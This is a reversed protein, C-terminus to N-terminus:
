PFHTLPDPKLERDWGSLLNAVTFYCISNKKRFIAFTLAIVHKRSKPFPWVIQAVCIIELLYYANILMGLFHSRLGFAYNQICLSYKKPSIRLLLIMHETREPIVLVVKTILGFQIRLLITTASLTQFQIWLEATLFENMKRRAIRFVCQVSNKPSIRLLLRMLEAKEPTVLVAKIILGFLVKLLIINACLTQFQNWLEATLYESVKSRTIRFVFQVSKLLYEPCCDRLETKEPIVLAVKTILGFLIRLLINSVSELTRCNPIWRDQEM